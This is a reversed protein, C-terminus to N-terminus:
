GPLPPTIADRTMLPPVIGPNGVAVAKMLEHTQLAIRDAHADDPFAKRDSIIAAQLEHLDTIHSVLGELAPPPDTQDTSHM